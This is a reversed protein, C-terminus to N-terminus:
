FFFGEEKDKNYFGGSNCVFRHMELFGELNCVYKLMELFIGRLQM